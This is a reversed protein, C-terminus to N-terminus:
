AFYARALHRSQALLQHSTRGERQIQVASVRGRENTFHLVPCHPNHPPIRRPYLTQPTPIDSLGINVQIPRRILSNAM